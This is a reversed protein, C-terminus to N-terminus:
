HCTTNSIKKWVNGGPGKEQKNIEDEAEAAEIVEIILKIYAAALPKGKHPRPLTITQGGRMWVGGQEKKAPRYSFGWRELLDQAEELERNRKNRKFEELLQEKTYRTLAGGRLAPTIACVIDHAVDRTLLAARMGLAGEAGSMM